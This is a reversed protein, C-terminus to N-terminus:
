ASLPLKKEPSSVITIIIGNEISVRVQGGMAVWSASREIVVASM